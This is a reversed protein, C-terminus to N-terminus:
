QKLTAAVARDTKVVGSEIKVRACGNEGWDNGWTNEVIWFRDSGKGGWGIVKAVHTGKIPFVSATPRFTYVGSKYTLFDSTVKIEAVVPGHALVERKM